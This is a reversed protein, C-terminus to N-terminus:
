EFDIEIGLRIEYLSRNERVQEISRDSFSEFLYRGTGDGVLSSDVVQVSFFQSDNVRGWDDNLLNGVNYVKMFVRGKSDGVFAPFEQDVRFDVRSSWKAHQGNREQLGPSLGERNAWAFFAAQDFAPVEEIDNAPDAVVGPFFVVNPDDGGTPVYLLHRGFFGDGEQGGSGMVYSQPQGEQAFTFVTFRTTNDGFFDRAYSARLTFRHPVVYNSTAPSPNAIDNLALNSFNSGAVSSTMPSIDTADTYAYGFSLDLGWDFDKQFQISWLDSRADRNSNTLMFNDEGQGSAYDYIPQGIVTEGIKEQSIDIYYASNVARSYLYDVDMQIEYWPLNYTAGLAFKWERPQKYSPSILVLNEISADAATTAAVSDFLAQPIDYGPRAGTLPISGDLVSNAGSFNSLTEQVNTVGDNSWANSIWVNPNGGSYLGLGGRVSLEDSADWTFGLRPMLLSLDDINADNRVGLADTFAQNF